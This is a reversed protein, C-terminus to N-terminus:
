TQPSNSQATRRIRLCAIEEFFIRRSSVVEIELGHTRITELLRKQDSLSSSILYLQCERELFPLAQKILQESVEVGTPGGHIAPDYFEDDLPLYPPNSVILDLKASTHIPSLGDAIIIHVNSLVRRLNERALYASEADKEIAVVEVSKEALIKTIYGTGCGVEASRVVNEVRMLSDELLWTDEAPGYPASSPM